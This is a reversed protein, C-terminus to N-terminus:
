NRVRLQLGEEPHSSLCGWKKSPKYVLVLYRGSLGPNTELSFVPMEQLETTRPALFWETANEPRFYLTYRYGKGDHDYRIELEEGAPLVQDNAPTLAREYRCPDFTSIALKAKELLVPEADERSAKPMDATIESAAESGPLTVPPRPAPVLTLEAVPARYFARRIGDPTEIELEFFADESRLGTLIKHIRPGAAQGHNLLRLEQLSRGGWIAYRCAQERCCEPQEWSLIAPETPRGPHNKLSLSEIEDCVARTGEANRPSMPLFSGMLGPNQDPAGEERAQAELWFSAVPVADALEVGRVYVVVQVPHIARALDRSNLVFEFPTRQGRSLPVERIHLDRYGPHAYRLTAFPQFGFCESSPTLELTGRIKVGYLAAEGLIQCDPPSSGVPQGFSLSIFLFILTGTWIFRM